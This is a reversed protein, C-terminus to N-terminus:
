APEPESRARIAAQEEPTARETLWSTVAAAGYLAAAFGLALPVGWPAILAAVFPMIFMASNRPTPTLALIVTQEARALVRTLHAYLLTNAFAFPFARVWVLAAVVWLGPLMAVGLTTLAMAIASVIVWRIGGQEDVLKGSIFTAIGTFIGAVGLILGIAPAPDDTLEAIRLPLYVDVVARSGITLFWCFFNWRLAPRRWVIMLTEGARRMISTKRVTRPPEPMLFTVLLAATLALIADLIFLGRIGIYGILVAGIPPGISASVPMAGQIISIATGVHQRPTFAAQTSIVVAVNGFSLGLLARAPLVWWINPAFAMMTYAITEAFQSRVIVLRASYREAIAGWFPALPFAVGMMVAYLIGTWQSVEPPSLGLEALYLPGYATSHGFALGELVTSVLFLANVAKWNRLRM